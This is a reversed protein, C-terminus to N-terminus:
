VTVLKICSEAECLLLSNVTSARVSYGVIHM